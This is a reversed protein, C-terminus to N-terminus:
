SIVSDHDVQDSGHDLKGGAFSRIATQSKVIANVAAENKLIFNSVITNTM